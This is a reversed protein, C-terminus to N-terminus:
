NFEKIFKENLDHDEYMDSCYLAKAVQEETFELSKNEPPQSILIIENTSDATIEDRAYSKKLYNVVEPQTTVEM